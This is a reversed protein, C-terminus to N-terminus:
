QQKKIIEREAEIDTGSFLDFQVSGSDELHVQWIIEENRNLFNYRFWLVIWIERPNDPIFDFHFDDIKYPPILNGDFSRTEKKIIKEDRVIEYLSFKSSRVTHSVKLNVAASQGSNHIDVKFNYNKSNEAVQKVKADKLTLSPKLRERIETAILDNSERTLRNSEGTKKWIVLATIANTAVLFIQVIVNEDLM